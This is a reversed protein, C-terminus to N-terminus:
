STVQLVTQYGAADLDAKGITNLNSVHDWIEVSGVAWEGGEAAKPITITVRWMGDHISGDVTQHALSTAQTGSPSFLRVQVGVVGTGVDRASVMFVVQASGDSVDVSDPSFNFGTLEPAETDPDASQIVVITPYGAADLDAKGITNLNSVHDWIEVSGVAWEGGEAAKPITITVRWMGDHISGDVTQHALSTAQTGSPSFLRVQVGVVGTGVDRASVMFVVQASGDSVDVSDPSFNFGTLEPAETDGTATATASFAVRSNGEVLVAVENRGAAAGLTWATRAEGAQDTISTGPSVSGGGAVVSWTVEMGSIPNGHSDAVRVALSDSLETGASGEQEDGSLKEFLSPEGPTAVAAFATALGAASARAEHEGAAAGLTWAARAVGATDTQSSGPSVSGGGATVSWTVEAGAVPNGHEDEIRVVLSDSLTSGASAVQEDGGHIKKVIAPPGPVATAAFTAEPVGDVHASLAQVGASTGLTWNTTARGQQNTTSSGPEVLGNGPTVLWTVLTGPVPNGAADTVQIIPPDTLQTGVTAEQGDGHIPAITSPPGVDPGTSDTCAAVVSISGIVLVSRPFRRRM